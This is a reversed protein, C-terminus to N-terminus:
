DALAAISGRLHDIGFGSNSSTVAIEPHAAGHKAAIALLEAKKAALAVPKVDDAKTLVFQYTVAARDLLDMAATDSAKVEIRADMLLMVRRLTPRGRLYEFMLGQWDEKVAKAAQAYGYGPMDVLTMRGGLDFFNLQRTRGPTHSARALAHHGTLANILSSKGVNSRGAFAVEHGVPPPLQDLRQAAFFFKATAAFLLRGKELMAAEEQEPTLAPATLDPAVGDPDDHGTEDQANHVM